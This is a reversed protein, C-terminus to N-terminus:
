RGTDYHTVLRLGRRAAGTFALLWVCLAVWVWARAFTAIPGVGDVHAVLFSCAAYM